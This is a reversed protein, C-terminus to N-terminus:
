WVTCTPYDKWESWADTHFLLAHDCDLKFSRSHLEKPWCSAVLVLWPLRNYNIHTIRGHTALILKQPSFIWIQRVGPDQAFSWPKGQDQTFSEINQSCSLKTDITVDGVWQSMVYNSLCCGRFMTVNCYTKETVDNCWQWVFCWMSYKAQHPSAVVLNEIFYYVMTNLIVTFLKLPFIIVLFMM